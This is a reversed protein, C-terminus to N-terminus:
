PCPPAPMVREHPQAISTTSNNLLKVYSFILSPYDSIAQYKAALVRYGKAEPVLHPHIARTHGPINAGPPRLALGSSASSSRESLNQHPLPGPNPKKENLVAHFVQCPYSIMFMIRLPCISPFSFPFMMLWIVNM